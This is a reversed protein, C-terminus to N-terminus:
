TRARGRNGAISAAASEVYDTLDRSLIEDAADGLLTYAHRKRWVSVGAAVAPDLAAAVRERLDAPLSDLIRNKVSLDRLELLQDLTM